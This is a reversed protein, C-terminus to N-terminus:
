LSTLLTITSKIYEGNSVAAPWNHRAYEVLSASKGAPTYWINCLYNPWVPIYLQKKASGNSLDHESMACFLVKLHIKVGIENSFAQFSSM